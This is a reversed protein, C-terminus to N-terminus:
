LRNGAVRPEDAREPQRFPIDGTRAGHVFQLPRQLEEGPDRLMRERAANEGLLQVRFRAGRERDRGEGPAVGCEDLSDTAIHLTFAYQALALADLQTNRPGSVQYVVPPLTMVCSVFTSSWIRVNIPLM